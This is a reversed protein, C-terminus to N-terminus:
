QCYKGSRCNPSREPSRRQQRSKSRKRRSLDAARLIKESVKAWTAAVAPSDLPKEATQMNVLLPAEDEWTVPADSGTTRMVVGVPEAGLERACTATTAADTLSQVEDTTIVLTHAAARLPRTADPGVGPPCDLIVPDHWTQLRDLAARVNERDGATLLRVGPLTTSTQSVARPSNGAAVEDVGNARDLDAYHHLDPMDPDCDVLLPEMGRRALARALGLATTTKGSGGKGGAVALM